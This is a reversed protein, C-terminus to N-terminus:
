LVVDEFTFLISDHISLIVLRSDLFDVLGKRDRSNFAYVDPNLFIDM